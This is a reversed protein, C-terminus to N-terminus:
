VAAPWPPPLPRSVVYTGYPSSEQPMQAYPQQYQQPAQAGAQRQCGAGCCRLERWVAGAKDGSRGHARGEVLLGHVCACPADPGSACSPV